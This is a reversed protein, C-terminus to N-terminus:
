PAITGAAASSRPVRRATVFRSRGALDPHDRVEHWLGTEAFVRPASEGQVDAHECAVLGGDVALRAAVQAVLRIADLGDHGSWLSLEPDHIRAEEDVSEWASLPIYPPNATVVQVTDALDDVADAIDGTRIEIGHMSGNREAYAAAEAALEVGTVLTGPAETAMAIAVAGSGTCLDVARPAAHGEAILHRLEAIAAGAMVETEPRPVFVGPGVELELHRFAAIGTIHQLPERHSRRFIAAEIRAEDETSVIPLRPLEGRTTGLVYAALAEADHRPSPVGAETLRQTGHALLSSLDRSM